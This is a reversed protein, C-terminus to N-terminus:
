VVPPRLCLPRKEEGEMAWGRQGKRGSEVGVKGGGGM